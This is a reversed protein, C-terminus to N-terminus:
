RHAVNDRCTDAHTVDVNSRNTRVSEMQHMEPLTLYKQRTHVIRINIQKLHFAKHKLKISHDHDAVATVFHNKEIFSISGSPELKVEIYSRISKVFPSSIVFM